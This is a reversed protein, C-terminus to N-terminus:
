GVKPRKTVRGFEDHYVRVRDTRFDSTVIVNPPVPVVQRLQPNEERIREVVIDAQQGVYNDWSSKASRANSGMLDTSAGSPILAWLGLLWFMM